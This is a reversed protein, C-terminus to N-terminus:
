TAPNAGSTAIITQIAAANEGLDQLLPTAVSALLAGSKLAAAIQAVTLTTVAINREINWAAIKNDIVGAPWGLSALDARAQAENIKVAVFQKEILRTNRTREASAAKFNTTTIHDAAQQATYGLGGLATTLAVPTLVGALYENTLQSVTEKKVAKGAPTGGAWATSFLTAWKPDWGVELLIQNAEPQTLTGSVTEAKIQFGSPYTYRGAYAISYYEPRLNGRQLTALEGTPIASYDGEYVGGRARGIVFQHLSLGRGLVDFLLDSDADSMGHQATNALRTKRDYYGRLELEAYEGATLIQRAQELIADAWEPRVDGELISRNYDSRTLISRFFGSAAEHTSMPLGISGVMVRLREKDVGGGLAEDLAILTSPTYAKVNGPGADLTEVMLGPDNILGRVIALAVQAPTLWEDFLNEVDAIYQQDLGTKVMAHDFLADFTNPRPGKRRWITMAEAFGPVTQALYVLANLKDAGYGELKADKQATGLDIGGQAVLRAMIAPDLVRVANESWATQKPLEIAPELAAAAATGVAVGTLIGLSSTLPDAM